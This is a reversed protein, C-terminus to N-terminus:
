KNIQMKLINLDIYNICIEGANGGTLCSFIWFLWRTV